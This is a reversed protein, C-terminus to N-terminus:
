TSRPRVTMARAERPCAHACQGCGVCRTEDITPALMPGRLVIAQDAYPCVYWCARCIGRGGRAWCYAPEIQATGMRVRAAVVAPDDPIPELAGTPCAEGCRMCLTCAREEPVIYPTSGEAGLEDGFRICAAACATGCRGCRICRALFEREPLAGPPRLSSAPRQGSPLACGAGLGVALGAV